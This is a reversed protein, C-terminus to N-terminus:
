PCPEPQLMGHMALDLVADIYREPELPAPDHTALSHQLVPQHDLAALLARAVYATDLQRFEGTDVGRQLVAEMFHRARLSIDQFYDRALGPFQGAEAIILKPIGSSPSGWFELLLGHLLASLLARASGEYGALAAEAEELRPLIGARVVARFLDEKNSFYLYLSGKSVGARRAVDEMRTGAFGRELFLELAANVLQEPSIDRPRGRRAPLRNPAASVAREM